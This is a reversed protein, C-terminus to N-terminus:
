ILRWGWNDPTRDWKIKGDQELRKLIRSAAAGGGQSTFQSDPWIISAFSSAKHLRNKSSRMFDLVRKKAVELPVHKSNSRDLRM